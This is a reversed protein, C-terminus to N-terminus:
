RNKIFLEKYKLPTTDMNKKFIKSFYSPSSFGVSNSIESISYSSKRLLDCAQKIKYNIIYDQPSIMMDKKFIKFFHSRDINLYDSIDSVSINKTYNEKIFEISKSIYVKSPPSSSTFESSHDNMLASLFQYLYGLGELLRNSSCSEYINRFYDDIKNDKTYNFVYNDESLGCRSLLEKAQTGNIGVWRYIWPNGELPYYNNDTNPPIFFGDGKKLHYVEDNMFFLGEGDLIYHLLYYDIQEYQYPDRPACHEFGCEYIYLESSPKLDTSFIGFKDM